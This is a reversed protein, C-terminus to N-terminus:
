WAMYIVHETNPNHFCFFFIRTHSTEQFQDSQSQDSLLFIINKVVASGRNFRGLLTGVCGGLAMRIQDCLLWGVPGLPATQNNKTEDYTYEVM